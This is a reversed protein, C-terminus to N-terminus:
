NEAKLRITDYYDGCRATIIATSNADIGTAHAVVIIQQQGKEVSIVDPDSSSFSIQAIPCITQFNKSIDIAYSTNMVVSLRYKNAFIQVQKPVDEQVLSRISKKQYGSFDNNIVSQGHASLASLIFAPSALKHITRM